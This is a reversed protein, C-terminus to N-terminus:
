GLKIWKKVQEIDNDNLFHGEGTYEQEVKHGLAELETKLLEVKDESAYPDNTGSLIIVKAHNKEIEVEPMIPFTPRLLIVRKIINSGLLLMSAIINAGNSFGLFISKEFNINLEQKIEKLFDQVEKARLRIDEEDFKDISIRKFFRLMGNESVNGRLSLINAEPNLEEAM